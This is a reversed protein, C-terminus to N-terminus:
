RAPKVKSGFLLKHDTSPIPSEDEESLVELEKNSVLMQRMNPKKVEKKKEEPPRNIIQTPADIM